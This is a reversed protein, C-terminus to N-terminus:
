PGDLLQRGGRPGRDRGDRPNLVVLRVPVHSHDLRNGDLFGKLSAADDKRPTRSDTDSQLGSADVEACPSGLTLLHEVREILADVDQLLSAALKDLGDVLERRSETLAPRCAAISQLASLLPARKERISALIGRLFSRRDGLYQGKAIAEEVDAVLREADLFAIKPALCVVNEM